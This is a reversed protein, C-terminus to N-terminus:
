IREFVTAGLWGSREKTALAVSKSCVDDWLIQRIQGQEIGLEVEGVREEEKSVERFSGPM